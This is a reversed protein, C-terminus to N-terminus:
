HAQKPWPVFFGRGAVGPLTVPLRSHNQIEGFLAKAAAAESTSTLSYTCIYNQTMTYNLILYPSGLAVVVTKRPATAVIDHTVFAAVVVREASKVLPLVKSPVADSNIHDNYYRFIKADPRRLKIQRNFEHGLRSNYADSFSVVLLGSEVASGKPTEDASKKKLIPL